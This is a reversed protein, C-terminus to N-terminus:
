RDSLGKLTPGEDPVTEPSIGRWKFLGMALATRQFITDLGDPAESLGCEPTNAYLDNLAEEEEDSGPETYLVDYAYGPSFITACRGVTAINSDGEPGRLFVSAKVMDIEDKKARLPPPAVNRVVLMEAIAANVLMAPAAREAANACQMHKYRYARLLEQYDPESSTDVYAAAGNGVSTIVCYAMFGAHGYRSMLSNTELQRLMGILQWDVNLEGNLGEGGTQVGYQDVSRRGKYQRVPRREEVEEREGEVVIARDDEDQQPRGQDQAEAAGPFALFAAGAALLASKVRYTVIM